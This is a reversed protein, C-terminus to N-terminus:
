KEKYFYTGFLLAFLALCGAILFNYRIIGTSSAVFAGILTGLAQGAFMFASYFGMAQGRRKEVTNESICVPVLVFFTSYIPISYLSFVIFPENAYIFTLSPLLFYTLLGAILIKRKSFNKSILLGVLLTGGIGLVTAISNLLPVWSVPQLLEFEIFIAFLSVYLSNSTQTILVLILLTAVPLLAERFTNQTSTASNKSLNVESNTISLKKESDLLFVSCFCIFSFVAAILFLPRFDEENKTLLFTTLVSGLFFGVSAWMGLRGFVEGQNSEKNFSVYRNYAPTFASFLINFCIYSGFFLWADSITYYVLFSTMQAIIALVILNKSGIKDSLRGFLSTSVIFVLYPISIILGAGIYDGGSLRFFYWSIFPGSMAIPFHVLLYVLEEKKILVM